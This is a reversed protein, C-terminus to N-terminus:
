RPRNKRALARRKQRSTPQIVMFEFQSRAAPPLQSPAPQKPVTMMQMKNRNHPFGVM